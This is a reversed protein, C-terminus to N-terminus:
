PKGALARAQVLAVNYRPNGNAFRTNPAPDGEPMAKEDRLQVLARQFGTLQKLNPKIEGTLQKREPVPLAMLLQDQQEPGLLGYAHAASIRKREIAESLSRVRDTADWGLSVTWEIACHNVRSQELLASYSEKFAMRAGIEDGSTLLQRCMGFAEAIEKTWVVSAEESKPCMAWAVEVGPRGDEGSAGSLEIISKVSVWEREKRLRSLGKLLQDDSLEASLDQAM